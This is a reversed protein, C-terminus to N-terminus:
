KFINTHNSTKAVKPTAIKKYSLTHLIRVAHKM